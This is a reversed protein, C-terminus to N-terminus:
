AAAAGRRTDQADPFLLVVQQRQSAHVNEVAGLVLFLLAGIHPIISVDHFMGNIVYSSLLTLGLLGLQRQPWALDRSVWLQWSKFGLAALIFVLLSLGALGTETAYSLFVNHQMYGLVEQLPMDATESYHYPKKAATYQGFGHGTLPKDRFMKFAVHALMPRLAASQAMEAESVYKDRQFRNLKEGFQVAALVLLLTGVVVFVGRVQQRAPLWAVLGAAVACALWVSRTLTLGAAVICLCATMGLFVRTLPRAYRWLCLTAVLCTILYIGCSVPNLFPGRARGLFEHYQPDLIFRPYVMEYWGRQECIATVGLYFGFVALVAYFVVLHQQQLRCHKALFYFGMPILNFFLLRSMPLNDKYRWDHLLTSAILVLGLAIVALDTRNLPKPDARELKWLVALTLILWGWLLRDVTLPIPGFELNFFPHGFTVGILVVLLCGTMMSLHRAMALFFVLGVLAVAILLIDM